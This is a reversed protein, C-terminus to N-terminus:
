NKISQELLIDGSGLSERTDIDDNIDENFREKTEKSMSSIIQKKIDSSAQRMITSLSKSQTFSNTVDADEDNGTNELLNKQQEQISILEMMNQQIAAQNAAYVDLLEENKMSETRQKWETAFKPDVPPIIDVLLSVKPSGDDEYDNDEEDEVLDELIIDDDLIQGDYRM